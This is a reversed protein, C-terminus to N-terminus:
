PRGQTPAIWEWSRQVLFQISGGTNLVDVLSQQLVSNREVFSTSTQAEGPLMEQVVVWLTLHKGYCVFADDDEEQIKSITNPYWSWFERHEPTEKM